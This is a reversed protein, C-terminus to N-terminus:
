SASLLVSRVHCFFIFVNHYSCLVATAICESALAVSIRLSVVLVRSKARLPCPFSRFSVFCFSVHKFRFCLSPLIVVFVRNDRYGQGGRRGGGYVCIVDFRNSEGVCALYVLPVFRVIWQIFLPFSIM